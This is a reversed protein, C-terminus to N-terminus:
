REEASAERAKVKIRKPGIQVETDPSSRLNHLWAPHKPYGGKSPVVVLNEGDTMYVLPATRRKGSRAGTHDLLLLPPLGPLSRGIRGGTARYLMAHGRMVRNLVPWM